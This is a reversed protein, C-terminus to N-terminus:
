DGYKFELDRIEEINPDTAEFWRTHSTVREVLPHEKGKPRKTLRNYNANLGVAEGYSVGVPLPIVHGDGLDHGYQIATTIEPEM